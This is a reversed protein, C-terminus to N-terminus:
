PDDDASTVSDPFWFRRVSESASSRNIGSIFCISIDPKKIKKVTIQMSASIPKDLRGFEEKKRMIINQELDTLYLYLHYFRSYRDYICIFV